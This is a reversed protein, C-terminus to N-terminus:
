SLCRQGEQFVGSGSFRNMDPAAVKQSGGSGFRQVGYLKLIYPVRLWLKRKIKM